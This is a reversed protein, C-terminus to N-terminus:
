KEKPKYKEAIEKGASDLDTFYNSKAVNVACARTYSESLIQYMKFANEEDGEKPKERKEEKMRKALDNISYNKLQEPVSFDLKAGADKAYKELESLKAITMVERVQNILYASIDANSPMAPEGYVGSGEIQKKKESYIESRTKNFEEGSTIQEYGQKGGNLGLQGFMYPNTLVTNSGLTGQMLKSELTKKVILTRQEEPSLEKKQENAM